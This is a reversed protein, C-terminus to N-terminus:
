RRLKLALGREPRGGGFELWARGCEMADACSQSWVMFQSALSEFIGTGMEDRKSALIASIGERQIRAASIATGKTRKTPM